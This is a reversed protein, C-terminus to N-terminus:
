PQVVPKGSPQTPAHMFLWDAYKPKGAFDKDALRFNSQKLPTAESQSYVGYIGGNPKRLVGWETSGTIPDPYMKRLYRHTTPYRPDKLLDELTMPYPQQKNPAHIYYATIARRFQDGVFLLEQEKDRQKATSWLEGVALLAIGMISVIVMLGIFTFGAMYGPRVKKDTAPRM